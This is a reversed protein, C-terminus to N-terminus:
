KFWDFHSEISIYFDRCEVTGPNKIAPQHRNGRVEPADEAGIVVVMIEM